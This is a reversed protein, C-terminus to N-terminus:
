YLSLSRRDALLYTALGDALLVAFFLLALRWHRRSACAPILLSLAVLMLPISYALGLGYPRAMLYDPSFSGKSYGFAKIAPMVLQVRLWGALLLKPIQIVALVPLEGLWIANVFPLTVMSAVGYGLGAKLALLHVRALWPSAETTSSVTNM